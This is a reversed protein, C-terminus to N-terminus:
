EGEDFISLEERAMKKPSVDCIGAINAVWDSAWIMAIRSSIKPNHRQVEKVFQRKWRWEKFAQILKDM